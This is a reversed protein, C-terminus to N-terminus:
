QEREYHECAAEYGTLCLYRNKNGRKHPKYPCCTPSCKNLRSKDVSAGYYDITGYHVCNRCQKKNKREELIQQKHAEKRKTLEAKLEDYTLSEILEERTMIM